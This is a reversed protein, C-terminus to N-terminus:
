QIRLLRPAKEYVSELCYFERVEKSFIHVVVGLYDLLVWGSDSNGESRYPIVLAKKLTDMIEQHIADVQRDTEASCIVIYDTYSCTQRTDLLAIDEAQKDSALEVARRAIEISELDTEKAEYGEHTSEFNNYCLLQLAFIIPRVANPFKM